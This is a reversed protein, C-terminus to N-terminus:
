CVASINNEDEHLIARDYKKIRLLQMALFAGLFLQSYLPFISFFPLVMRGLLHGNGVETLV